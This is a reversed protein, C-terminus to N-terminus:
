KYAIYGDIDFPYLRAGEEKVRSYEKVAEPNSRLYDRFTVHRKLESADRSCVYLHHKMLHEKGEYSFAERGKIGNDGDHHYGITRLAEVVDTLVSADKIVIDIDIIPKASLGPVSTSGVHEISIAFDKLADKLEKEIAQFEQAWAPDYPLVTVKKIRRPQTKLVEEIKKFNDLEEDRNYTYNEPVHDFLEIRDMESEPLKGLSHVYAFYARGNNRGIGDDWIQTYDWLPILVCDTIGTEEYLERFAAADATEGAEVHGGPHEFSQRRKHFSYVWKDRYRAFIVVFGIDDLEGASYYKKM